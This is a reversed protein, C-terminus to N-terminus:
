ERTHQPGFAPHYYAKGDQIQREITATLQSNATLLKLFLFHQPIGAFGHTVGYDAAPVFGFRPYYDPHGLVVVFPCGAQKLQALGADILASGIGTRQRRPAVAMPALGMGVTKTEPTEIAAPTLLLHGVVTEGESAVLSLRDSCSQRLTDVLEAEGQHGWESTAFADITLQRIAQCDAPTEPRIDPM